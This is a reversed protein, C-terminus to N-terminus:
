GGPVCLTVSHLIIKRCKRNKGLALVPSDGWQAEKDPFVPCAFTVHSFNTLYTQLNNSFDAEIEFSGNVTRVVPSIVLLLTESTANSM